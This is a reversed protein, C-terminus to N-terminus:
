PTAEKFTRFADSWPERAITEALNSSQGESCVAGAARLVAIVEPNQAYCLPELGENDQANVDAGGELLASTITPNDNFVAALHLPTVDNNDRAELDAGANLLTTIVAPNDTFGAALHLPTANNVDRAELDAGANLLTTIVAPDDTFVAALHLPTANIATRAELDAGANLLTTIVAPDNFGAAFHLPTWDNVDRAELDAGANLLTTIITPDDNYRAAWHLPMRENVDRAELDAGANLLTTIVAPNDTFGAALHLPTANNFLNNRANVNAGAQICATVVEATAVEFFARTNWDSCDPEQVTITFTLSDADSAATNADADEVRYEVDYTGATTPTGGLMRTVPDFTLGPVPPRLSYSLPGEGGSAASLTLPAIAEGVTYSQDAVTGTFSPATDPEPEQVTITFTLSDADSAATNADADEVRYEVDYTGATTPTGGLMRTVPDFTLGPVPPRLSYSLPGEGGSAASLTLPAIAEGVTYSQDAVTGTFSPATDPEPEQVTITFTLSDADSAATNADADEVRYEVDYTGATTPTGGLMRTVPDFTLGPVPPRLSYSLPGEGGSAAPLTLPAIAEGVTYSQDAVTGTFSPATDPEPEQVTITFTLVDADSAATNADADEVRYEVDYTGATTPTGGLSSTAMDFTLGPVSGDLTYTLTGNGGSAAPLLLDAIAQGVTYTQDAITATGEFSPATDAPASVAGRCGATGLAIILVASVVLALRSWRLKSNGMFIAGLGGWNRMPM